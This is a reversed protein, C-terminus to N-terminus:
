LTPVMVFPNECGDFTKGLFTISLPIFNFDFEARKDDAVSVAAIEDSFANNESKSFVEFIPFSLDVIVFTLSPKEERRYSERTEV